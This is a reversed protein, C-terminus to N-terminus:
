VKVRMNLSDEIETKKSEEMTPQNDEKWFSPKKCNEMRTFFENKKPLHEENNDESERSHISCPASCHACGVNCTSSCNGCNYGCGSNSCGDFPEHDDLVIDVAKFDFDKVSM